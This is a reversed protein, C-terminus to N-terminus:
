QKEITVITALIRRFIVNIRVNGTNKYTQIKELEWVDFNFYYSMNINPNSFWNQIFKM